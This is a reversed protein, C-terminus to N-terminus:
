PFVLAGDFMLANAATGEAAFRRAYGGQLALYRTRWGFSLGVHEQPAVPWGEAGAHLRVSRGAPTWWEVWASVGASTAQLEPAASLTQLLTASAHLHVLRAALWTVAAAVPILTVPAYPNAFAGAHLNGVGRTEAATPVRLWSAQLALRLPGGRMLGLKATANATGYFDLYPDTGVTLPGLGVQAHRLGVRAVGSEEVVGTHEWLPFLGHVAPPPADATATVTATTTATTTAPEATTVTSADAVAALAPAAAALCAATSTLAFARALTPHLTLFSGTQRM